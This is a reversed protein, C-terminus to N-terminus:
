YQQICSPTCSSCGSSRGHLFVGLGAEPADGLAACHERNASRSLQAPHPSSLRRWPSPCHRFIPASLSNSPNSPPQDSGTFSRPRCLSQLSGAEDIRSSEPSNVLPSDSPIVRPYPGRSRELVRSRFRRVPSFVSIRSLSMSAPVADFFSRLKTRGFVCKKTLPTIAGM